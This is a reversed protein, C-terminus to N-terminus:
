YFNYFRNKYVFYNSFQICDLFAVATIIDIM